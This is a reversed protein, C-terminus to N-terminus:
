SSYWCSSFYEEAGGNRIQQNNMKLSIIMYNCLPQWVTFHEMKKWVSNWKEKSPHTPFIELAWNGSDSSQSLRGLVVWSSIWMLNQSLSFFVQKSLYVSSSLKLTKGNYWKVKSWFLVPCFPLLAGAKVPVRLTMSMSKALIKDRQDSSYHKKEKQFLSSSM